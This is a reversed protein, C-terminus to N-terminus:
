KYLRKSRRGAFVICSSLSLVLVVTLLLCVRCCCFFLLSTSPLPTLCAFVPLLWCTIAFSCSRHPCALLSVLLCLCNPLLWCAIAFSYSHHLCTLLPLIVHHSLMWCCFLCLALTLSTLLVSFVVPRLFSM